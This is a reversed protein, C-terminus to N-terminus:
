DPCPFDLTAALAAAEDMGLMSCWPLFPVSVVVVKM